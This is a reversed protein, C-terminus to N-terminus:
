KEYKCSNLEKRLNVLESEVKQSQHKLRDNEQGVIILKNFLITRQDELQSVKSQSEILTAQLLTNKEEMANLKLARKESVKSM